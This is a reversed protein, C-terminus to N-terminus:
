KVARALDRRLQAKYKLIEAMLLDHHKPIKRDLFRELEEELDSESMFQVLARQDAQSLQDLLVDVAKTEIAKTLLNWLQTQQGADYRDFGFEVMWQQKDILPTVLSKM